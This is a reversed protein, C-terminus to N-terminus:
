YLLGGALCATAYIEKRFILPVENCLTDRVVGGFVASVTGMLLAVVPSLGLELTKQLGLITFLGIGITDFLFMTRRLRQIFSRFLYSIPVAIGILVLYNSDTMWGVPHSGIMMDRLTGGGVATVFAIVFAGFIDFKKNAATLVGSIAFVLTGALDFFYILDM